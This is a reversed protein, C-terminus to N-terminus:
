GDRAIEFARLRDPDPPCRNLRSRLANGALAEAALREHLEAPLDSATAGMGERYGPLKPPHIQEYAVQESSIKGKERQRLYDRLAENVLDTVTRRQHEAEHKLNRHLDDSLVITHM